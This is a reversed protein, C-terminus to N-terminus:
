DERSSLYLDVDQDVRELHRHRDEVFNTRYRNLMRDRLTEPIDVSMIKTVVPDAPDLGRLRPDMPPEDGSGAHLRAARLAETLDVGTAEAFRRVTEVNEPRQKDTEWRWITERAVGIAQALARQSLRAAKRATLSFTAWDGSKAASTNRM